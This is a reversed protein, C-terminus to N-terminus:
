NTSENRIAAQASSTAYSSFSDFYTTKEKDKKVRVLGKPINGAIALDKRGDIVVEVIGPPRTFGNSPHKALLGKMIKNWIPAAGTVGSTLAQNMPSNDPNGVWAGVVFDPTYGYTLNNTKQDSTGTKVAVVNPPLYLQSRPGFAPTRAKNDSLIDSILYAVEPDLVQRGQDKYEELLNGNSDTVKLIPTPKRFIGLQSFTGYVGMMEVMKVDAAGLTFALGYRKPDTFTTIGLDRSTQIIPDLGITTEVRVAPINYSSGLATRVSVPGHFTGDYNQPAYANGWEDAFRVPADLVTNGPSYGKKFATAYTLVKISSGPQRLSLTANFNGFDPYKYDRSGTMALIQGTKADTVMAAGNRVNLSSLSDIEDKVIKEVAEQLPLDLTTTVKLGGQSILRPGYKQALYDKVYFVFHPARIDDLQNRFTLKERLATEIQEKSIYKDEVMRQLIQKQREVGLEPHTGFPSFETPSAPLGALFASEALTLENPEKAFYSRAAAVIGTNPGGYPAISLYMTLIQDKSYILEAWTALIVEKIKRSYTKESSLLSNKILQQTITSGGELIQGNKHNNYFARIIAKFDVGGHKYFNRDEASITAQILHPPVETLKVLYRNQGDYIRYLLNGGRDFIETTLPQSYPSLRSPSPLEYAATLIFGTYFVAALLLATVTLAVKTKTPIKRRIFKKLRNLYFPIFPALRPRGRRSRGIWQLREATVKILLLPLQGISALIFQVLLLAAKLPSPTLITAARKKRPM